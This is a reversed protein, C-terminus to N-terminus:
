QWEGTEMQRALRIARTKVQKAWKSNLMGRAAGAYDGERVMRLTNEFGLLGKGSAESGIGMNFAMDFLVAQRAPTLCQVWPLKLLVGNKARDIDMSLVLEAKERSISDGFTNVGEIPDADCNHGYGITLAGAPCLYAKLRLGEGEKIRERLLSDDNSSFIVVM